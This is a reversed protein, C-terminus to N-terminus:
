EIDEDFIDIMEDTTGPTDPMVFDPCFYHDVKTLYRKCKTWNDKGGRCYNNVYYDKKEEEDIFGPINVIPCTNHNICYVLM